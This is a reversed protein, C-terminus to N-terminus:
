YGYITLRHIEKQTYFAYICYGKQVTIFFQRAEPESHSGTPLECSSKVKAISDLWLMQVTSEKAQCFTATGATKGGNCYLEGKLTENSTFDILGFDRFGDRTHASLTVICSGDNELWTLPAYSYRFVSKSEVNFFLERHCSSVVLEVTDKPLQVEINYYSARNIVAIGDQKIGNVSFKLTARNDLDSPFQTQQPSVCSLSSMITTLLLLIKKM